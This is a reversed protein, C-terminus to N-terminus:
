SSEFLAMIESEPIPEAGYKFGKEFSAEIELLQKKLEQFNQDKKKVSILFGGDLRMKKLLSKNPPSDIKTSSHDTKILGIGDRSVRALVYNDWGLSRDLPSIGLESHIKASVGNWEAIKKSIEFLKEPDSRYHVTIRKFENLRLDSGLSPIELAICATEKGEFFLNKFEGLGIPLYPSDFGCAELYDSIKECAM